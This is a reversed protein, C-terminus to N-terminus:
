IIKETRESHRQNMVWRLAWSAQSKDNGYEELEKAAEEKLNALMGDRVPEMVMIPINAKQM